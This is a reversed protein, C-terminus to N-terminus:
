DLLYTGLTIEGRLHAFLHGVNLLEHVCIHRGDDLQQARLGERLLRGLYQISYGSIEAAAKVSLHKELVM